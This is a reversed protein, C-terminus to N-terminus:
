GCSEIKVDEEGDAHFVKITDADPPHRTTLSVKFPVVVAPWVGPREGCRLVQYWPPFIREPRQEIKADYGPTPLEGEAVILVSDAKRFARISTTQALECKNSMM